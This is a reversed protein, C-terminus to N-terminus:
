SYLSAIGLERHEIKYDNPQAARGKEEGCTVMRVYTVNEHNFRSTKVSNILLFSKRSETVGQMSSVALM